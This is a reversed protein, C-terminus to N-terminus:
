MYTDQLIFIVIPWSVKLSKLCYLTFLRLFNAFSSVEYKMNELNGSIIICFLAVHVFFSKSM